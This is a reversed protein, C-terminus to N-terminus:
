TWWLLTVLGASPYVLHARLLGMTIPTGRGITPLGPCQTDSYIAVHNQSGWEVVNGTVPFMETIKDFLLRVSKMSTAEEQLKKCVSNFTKLSDVLAVIRRHAAPKPMLEYVADVRKIADRIRVYRELMM